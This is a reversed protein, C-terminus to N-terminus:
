SMREGLLIYRADGNAKASLILLYIALFVAGGFFALVGLGLGAPSFGHRWSVWLASLALMFMFDLNFQGAWNVAAMDGFFVQFLNMGYELIVVATYAGLVILMLVLLLRFAAM